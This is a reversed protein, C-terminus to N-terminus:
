KAAAVKKGDVTCLVRFGVNYVPQWPHYALRFNSRCRKPLAYFSGGRVVRRGDAAPANRGDDGRYPYPRSLSLTWEAANGHMDRLGWANPAYRGVDATVVSGDSVSGVCPIWKPSDRRCLSLVRQDAMNALKGFDADM